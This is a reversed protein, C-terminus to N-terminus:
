ARMLIEIKLRAACRLFKHSKSLYSIELISGNANFVTSM